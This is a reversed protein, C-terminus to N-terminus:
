YVSVETLVILFDYVMWSKTLIVIDQIRNYENRSLFEETLKGSKYMNMRWIKDKDLKYCRKKQCYYRIKKWSRLFWNNSYIIVNPKIDQVREIYEQCESKHDIGFENKLVILDILVPELRNIKCFMDYQQILYELNIKDEEFNTKECYNELFYGLNSGSINM